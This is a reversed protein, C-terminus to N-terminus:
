KFHKALNKFYKNFGKDNPHLRLDSYYREDHPVLDFGDIVTVNPLQSAVEEIREKVLFFSFDTEMEHDKRWIPTIAFIKSEPYLRSLTQYFEACDKLFVDRTSRFFDNTGYAVTIYEPVFDEKSAALAPFFVEAGIAKNYEEADLLDALQSTYRNSPCLADYGQTISDGFCLMKKSPKVPIVSAGDDLAFTKIVTHMSWPMYICIEKEGKGLYVNKSFDGTPVQIATYDGSLDAESYNEVTDICKGNKFIDIGFFRRTTGPQPTVHIQLFLKESDTRFRLRVGATALTRGYLDAKEKKYLEMQEQSFRYFHVGDQEEAVSVAGCAVARLQETTLNM